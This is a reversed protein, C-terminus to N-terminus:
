VVGGTEADRYNGTPTLLRWAAGHLAIAVMAPDDGSPVQFGHETAWAPHGHVRTHCRGHLACLNAASDQGGRSRLKRHHCQYDALRLREGCCECLGGARRYVLARLETDITSGRHNVRPMPAQWPHRQIPKGRKVTAV